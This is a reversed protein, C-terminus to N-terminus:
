KEKATYEVGDVIIVLRGNKGTTVTTTTSNPCRGIYLGTSGNSVYHVKCDKLDDPMVPFTKQETYAKCGTLFLGIISVIFIKKM